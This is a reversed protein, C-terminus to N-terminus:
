ATPSQPSSPPTADRVPARSPVPGARGEAVRALGELTRSAIGHVFVPGIVVTAAFVGILPWRPGDWAHVLRVHTGQGGPLAEFAWEVEMRTTIGGIHRFRVAPRAADVEMESLWWTPWDLLGFPRNASMEVIGGGDRARERFRVF